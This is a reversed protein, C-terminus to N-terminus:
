DYRFKRGYKNNRKYNDKIAHCNPCLLSLNDEKNNWNGDKHHIELPVKNIYPNKIAWGCEECKEGRQEVLWRKINHSTEMNNYTNGSIENGLWRRIYEKYRHNMHCKHSCFIKTNKPLVNNCQICNGRPKARGANTQRAACTHSCYKQPFHIPKGCICKGDKQHANVHKSYVYCSVRQQCIPCIKETNKGCFAKHGCLGQLSNFEKKCLECTFM